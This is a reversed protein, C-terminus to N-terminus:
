ARLQWLGTNQECNLIQLETTVESILSSRTWSAGTIIPTVLTGGENESLASAVVTSVLDILAGAFDTSTAFM